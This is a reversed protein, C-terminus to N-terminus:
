APKSSTRPRTRSSSNPHVLAWPFSGSRRRHAGSGAMTVPRSSIVSNRRDCINFFDLWGGTASHGGANREPLLSTARDMVDPRQHDGDNLLAPQGGPLHPVVSGRARLLVGAPRRHLWPRHPFGCPLHDARRGSRVLRHLKHHGHELREPQRDDHLRPLQRRYVRCNPGQSRAISACRHASSRDCPREVVVRVAAGGRVGLRRRRQLGDSEVGPGCFYAGMSERHLHTRGHRASGPSRSRATSRRGSGKPRSWVLSTRTDITTRWTLIFEKTAPGSDFRVMASIEYSSGPTLKEGLTQWPGSSTRTRETVKLSAAGGAVIETDVSFVGGDPATWPAIGSEFGGNDVLNAGVAAGEASSPPAALGAVVLAAAIVTAGFWRVNKPRVHM